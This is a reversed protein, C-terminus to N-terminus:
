DIPIGKRVKGTGSCTRCKPNHSHVKGGGGCTPCKVKKKVLNGKTPLGEKIDRFRRKIEVSSEGLCYSIYNLCDDPTLRDVDEDSGHNLIYDIVEPTM